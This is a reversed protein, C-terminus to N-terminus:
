MSKILAVSQPHCSKEEKEKRMANQNKVRSKFDANEFPSKQTRLSLNIVKHVSDQM